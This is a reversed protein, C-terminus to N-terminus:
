FRVREKKSRQNQYSTRQAVLKSSPSDKTRACCEEGQRRYPASQRWIDTLEQCSTRHLAYATRQQHGATKGDDAGREALVLSTRCNPRPRPERRNRSR